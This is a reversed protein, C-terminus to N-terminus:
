IDVERKKTLSVQISTVTAVVIFFIIAKATGMGYRNNIFAETYINMALSESSNYPGGKTLSFNLDFMKFAWAIALFMCVTVVPMILPIVIRHLKQWANAGDINAAELMETPINALGAIYIVMLYGAQHWTFVIVLGWFATNETGLWPLSFFDINTLKGISSFGQIFVFKWIFGLLLGGLVNPMFFITRLLNRSKISKSLIFAISFGLLNTLVVSILMFRTTFWFSQFFGKDNTLITRFNDFGIWDINGSVGNWNTFSYFVGFAFPMVIIVSYFLIAPGLFVIQQVWNSLLKRL